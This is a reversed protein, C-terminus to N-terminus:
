LIEPNKSSAFMTSMLLIIGVFMLLPIIGYIFASSVISSLLLFCSALGLIPMFLKKYNTRYVMFILALACLTYSIATGFASIQQLPVQNGGSLLLYSM